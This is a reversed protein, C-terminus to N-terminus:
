GPTVSAGEVRRPVAGTLTCIARILRHGGDATPAFMCPCGGDIVTVGHVRGLAAVGDDVSTGGFAHHMWVKTVGLAICENMTAEAHQPRTAIVVAEVGGPVDYLTAFCPDGEVTSANPNVAYM